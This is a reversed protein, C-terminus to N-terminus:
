GHAPYRAGLYTGASTGFPNAAAGPGAAFTLPSPTSQVQHPMAHPLSAAPMISAPPMISRAMTGPSGPAGMVVPAATPMAVSPMAVSAVAPLPSLGPMMAPVGTFSAAPTGTYSGVHHVSTHGHGPQSAVQQKYARVRASIESFIQQLRVKHGPLWKVNNFAEVDVLNDPSLTTLTDLTDYGANTFHAAVATSIKHSKFFGVVEHRERELDPDAQWVSAFGHLHEPYHKCLFDVIFHVCNTPKKEEIEQALRTFLQAVAANSGHTSASTRAVQGDVASPQFGGPQTDHLGNRASAM